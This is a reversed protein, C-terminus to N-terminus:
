EAGLVNWGRVRCYGVRASGVEVAVLFGLQLWCFTVKEKPGEKSKEKQVVQECLIWQAFNVSIVNMWLPICPSPHFAIDYGVIICSARRAFNFGSHDRMPNNKNRSIFKKLPSRRGAVETAHLEWSLFDQTNNAYINAQRDSKTGVDAHSWWPSIGDWVRNTRSPVVALSFHSSSVM